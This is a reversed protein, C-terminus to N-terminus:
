FLLFQFGNLVSSVNILSNIKLSQTHTHRHPYISPCLSLYIADGTCSALGLILLFLKWFKGFLSLIGCVTWVILSMGVTGTHKLIGKPSIFIGAGIITGIIISVGRLFTIKKKLVVKDGPEVKIDYTSPLKPQGQSCSGNSFSSVPSKRFM